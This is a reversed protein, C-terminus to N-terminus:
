STRGLVERQGNAAERVLRTAPGRGEFSIREAGLAFRGDSLPVLESPLEGVNRRYFLKGDMALIGVRGDYEGAVEALMRTSLGRHQARAQAAEALGRLERTREPQMAALHWLAQAHAEDLATSADTMLDPTVGAATGRDVSPREGIITARARRQLEAPVVEAVSRTGGSTLVFVPVTTDRMLAATLASAMERSEGANRRLDVILAESRKLFTFAAALAERAEPGDLLATVELYGVNGALVEVKGLGYNRRASETIPARSQAGLTSGAGSMLSVAAAVAALLVVHPRSM